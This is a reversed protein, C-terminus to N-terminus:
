GRLAAKLERIEEEILEPREVTQSIENHLLERYRRRLRHVMVKLSGENMGLRTGIEAYSSDSKEGTLFCKLENFVHGRDSSVLEAQLQDLVRGLLTMAWRHEFAKDPSSRDALEEALFRVETDEGNISIHRRGGGRKQRKAQKWENVLFHQVSTLLFTRFRGRSRDALRFYKRELFRAFFEQVLDQADEPGHGKRRVYVYLPYWYEGCLKELAAASQLSATEGAALVM